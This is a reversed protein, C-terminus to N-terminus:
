KIRVDYRYTVSAKSLLPKDGVWRITTYRAPDAKQEVIGAPTQVKITPSVSWTKGGDISFEVRQAATSSATGVEYATGAPIKGVPMLKKAPEVGRNTAVIDYRVTEGPELAVSSVPTSREVGKADRQVLEGDLTIQVNPKADAASGLVVFAALFACTAKLHQM